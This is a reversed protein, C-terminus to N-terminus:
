MINSSHKSSINSLLPIFNYLFLHTITLLMIILYFNITIILYVAGALILLASTEGLSGSINGLFLRIYDTVIGQKNFLIM